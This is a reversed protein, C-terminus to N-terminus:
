IENKVSFPVGKSHRRNVFPVGKVYGLNLVRSPMGKLQQLYLTKLVHICRLILVKERSTVPMFRM